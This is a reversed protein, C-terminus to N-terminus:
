VCHKQSDFTISAIRTHTMELTRRGKKSRGETGADAKLLIRARQLKLASIRGRSTMAELSAREDPTLNIVYRKDMGRRM